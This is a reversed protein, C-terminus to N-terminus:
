FGVIGMLEPLERSAAAKDPVSGKRHLVLQEPVFIRLEQGPGLQYVLERVPLPLMREKGIGLSLDQLLGELVQIKGVPGEETAQFLDPGPVVGFAVVWAIGPELLFVQVIGEPERLPEFKLAPMHKQGLEPPEPEVPAALDFSCGLIHGDGTVPRVPVYGHLHLPLDGIRDRCSLWAGPHVEPHGAEEGQGVAGVRLRQIREPVKFVLEGPLLSLEGALDPEGRVPALLLRPHVPHMALDPVAAPVKQM